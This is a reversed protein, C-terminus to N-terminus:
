RDVFLLQERRPVAITACQAALRLVTRRADDFRPWRPQGAVNPDGSRAFALWRSQMMRTVRHDDEGWDRTLVATSGFVYPYESSHFVGLDGAPTAERYGQRPAFPQRHDFHYVYTPAVRAHDTVARWVGWAFLEDGTLQRSARQAQLDDDAPYLRLAQEIRNGFRRQLAARHDLLQVQRRDVRHAADVLAAHAGAHEPAADVRHIQM